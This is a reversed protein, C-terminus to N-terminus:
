VMGAFNRPSARGMLNLFFNNFLNTIYNRVVNMNYSIFDNLISTATNHYVKETAHTAVANRELIKRKRQTTSM